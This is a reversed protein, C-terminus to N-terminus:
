GRAVRAARAANWFFRSLTTKGDKGVSLLVLELYGHIGLVSLHLPEGEGTALLVRYEVPQGDSIALLRYHGDPLATCEIKWGGSRGVGGGDCAVSPFGPSVIKLDGCSGEIPRFVSNGSGDERHGITMCRGDKLRALGRWPDIIQIGRFDRMHGELIIESRLVASFVAQPDSSASPGGQEGLAPTALAALLLLVRKRVM